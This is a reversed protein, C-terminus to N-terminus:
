MEFGSVDGFKGELLHNELGDEVLWKGVVMRSEGVKNVVGVGGFGKFTEGAQVKASGFKPPVDFCGVGM